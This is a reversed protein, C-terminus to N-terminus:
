KSRETSMEKEIEKYVSDADKLSLKKMKKDRKNQELEELIESFVPDSGIIRQSIDEFLEQISVDHKFCEIRLMNYTDKYLKIHICKKELYVDGNESRLLM